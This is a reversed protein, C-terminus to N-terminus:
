SAGLRTCVFNILETDKGYYWDTLFQEVEHTMSILKQPREKGFVVETKKIEPLWDIM